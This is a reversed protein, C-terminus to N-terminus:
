ATRAPTPDLGRIAEVEDAMVSSLGRLLQRAEAPDWEHSALRDVIPHMPLATRDRQAQYGALAIRTARESAAGAVVATALLEADHLAATIGHTSLPDKWWGADGVLAWGRGTRVACGRRCGASSGCRATRRRRWSTPSGATSGRWCHRSRRPRAATGCRRPSRPQRAASSSARSATTRRSSAPPCRTATM